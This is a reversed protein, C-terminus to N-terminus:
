VSFLFISSASSCLELKMFIRVMMLSRRGEKMSTFLYFYVTEGM